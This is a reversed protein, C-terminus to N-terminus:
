KEGTETTIAECAKDLAADFARATVVVERLEAFTKAGISGDGEGLPKRNQAKAVIQDLAEVKEKFEPGLTGLESLALVANMRDSRKHPKKPLTVKKTEDDARM